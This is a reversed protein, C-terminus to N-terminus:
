SRILRELKQKDLEPCEWDQPIPMGLEEVLVRLAEEPFDRVVAATQIKRWKLRAEELRPKWKNNDVDLNFEVRLVELIDELCPRFRHGGTPFHFASLVSPTNLYKKVQYNNEPNLKAAFGLLHTFEDRHAHVHFHSSPLYSKQNRVYEVRFLPDRGPKSLPYVAFTSNEVALFNNTTDWTCKYEPKIGIVARGQSKLPVIGPKNDKQELRISVTIAKDNDLYTYEFPM